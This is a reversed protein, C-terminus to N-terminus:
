IKLTAKFQTFDCYNYTKKSVGTGTYNITGMAALMGDIYAGFTGAIGAAKFKLKYVGIMGSMIAASVSSGASAQIAYKAYYPSAYIPHSPALVDVGSCLNWFPNFKIDANQFNGGAVNIVSGLAAPYNICTDLVTGDNGASAMIVIDRAEYADLLDKLEQSTTFFDYLKTSSMSINVIDVGAALFARLGDLFNQPEIIPLGNSVSSQYSYLTANPLFGYYGNKYDAGGIITAMYAGHANPVPQTQSLINLRNGFLDNDQNIGGDYVGIKLPANGEFNWLKIFDIYNCLSNDAPLPRFAAATYKNGGTDTLWLNNNEITEGTEVAVIEVPTGVELPTLKQSATNPGVRTNVRRTVITKM